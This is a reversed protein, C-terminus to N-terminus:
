DLRVRKGKRSADPFYCDVKVGRARAYEVADPSVQYCNRLILHELKDQPKQVVAKVGVGTIEANMLAIKRLRPVHEVLSKLCRDDFDEQGLKLSVIKKLYGSEGLSILGAPDLGNCAELELEEINGKNPELLMQLHDLELSYPHGGLFLRTLNTLNNNIINAQSATSDFDCSFCSIMVLKQLSSPLTPFVVLSLKALNLSQLQNLSSFNPNQM